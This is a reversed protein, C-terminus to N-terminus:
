RLRAWVAYLDDCAFAVHQIGEGNYARLYEEIQGGGGRGEENLPIRIKGDPATLAKSSLGTHDGRIDFSRIERFNFIREYFSAWHAMRGGYLNHTLHDILELGAGPPHREAGPEPAPQM